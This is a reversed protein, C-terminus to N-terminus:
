KSSNILRTLLLSALSHTVYRQPTLLGYPARDYCSDASRSYEHHNPADRHDTLDSDDSFDRPYTNKLREYKPPTYPPSSYVVYPKQPVAYAMALMTPSSSRYNNRNSSILAMAAFGRRKKEKENVLM